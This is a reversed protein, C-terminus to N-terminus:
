TSLTIRSAAHVCRDRAVRALGEGSAGLYPRLCVSALTQNKRTQNRFWRVVQAETMEKRAVSMALAFAEEPDVYVPLGNAEVFTLAAILGTRKNGDLYGHAHVIGYLYAAACEALDAGDDSWKNIPRHLAADIAGANLVGM